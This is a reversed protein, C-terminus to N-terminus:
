DVLFADVDIRGSVDTLVLTHPGGTEQYWNYVISRDTPLTTAFSVTGRDIGDVTVKATGRGPKTPAVIAVSNGTYNFTATAGPLDTAKSTYGNAVPQDSWRNTPSYTAASDDFTTSTGYNKFFVASNGACDKATQRVTFVATGNALSTDQKYVFPPAVFQTTVAGNNYTAGAQECVNSPDSLQWGVTVPVKTKGLVGLGLQKGVTFHLATDYVLTPPTTDPDAAAPSALAILAFPVLALARKKV